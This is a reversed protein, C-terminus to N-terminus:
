RKGSRMQDVVEIAVQEFRKAGDIQGELRLENVIKASARALKAIRRETEDRDPTRNM